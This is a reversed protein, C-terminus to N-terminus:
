ARSSCCSRWATSRDTRPRTRRASRRFLLGIEAGNPRPEDDPDIWDLISNAIDETMNPLTLLMNYAVQGSSDLQLLANLNIKGGEDTVGFCYPQSAINPDDPSLPAIISFRGQLRPQAQPNVLIGQFAQANDFPNGNLTKTFADSNSLIAAAYHVGSDALAHAQASRTYSDAAKYEALMLESFQYAALTLLVVVVLVALLVFGRRSPPTSTSPHWRM